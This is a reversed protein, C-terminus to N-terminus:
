STPHLSKYQEVADTWEQIEEETLYHINDQTVLRGTVKFAHILEPPINAAILFETIEREIDDMPMPQPEEANDDFFVPEHPRPDRGFKQRFREEQHRLVEKMMSTM